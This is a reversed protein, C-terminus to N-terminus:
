SGEGEDDEHEDAVAARTGVIEAAAGPIAADVPVCRRALPIGLGLAESSEPVELARLLGAAGPLSGDVPQGILAAVGDGVPDTRGCRQGAHLVLRDDAQEGGVDRIGGCHQLAQGGEAVLDALGAAVEVGCALDDVVERGTRGVEARIEPIRLPKERELELPELVGLGHQASRALRAKGAVRRYVASYDLAGLGDRQAERYSAIAATAVPTELGHSAVLELALGLDKEILDLAFLPAWDNSSPHADDVGGLPFRTRLVRSDGTSARLLDYLTAAEIGEADALACAEALAAM